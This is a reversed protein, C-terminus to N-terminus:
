VCSVAHINKRGSLGIYNLGPCLQGRPRPPFTAGPLPHWLFVTRPSEIFLAFFEKRVPNGPMMKPFYSTTEKTRFLIKEKILMAARVIKRGAKWGLAGSRKGQTPNHQGKLANGKGNVMM